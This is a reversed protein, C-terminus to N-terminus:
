IYDNKCNLIEVFPSVNYDLLFIDDMGGSFSTSYEHNSDSVSCNPCLYPSDDVSVGASHFHNSPKDSLWKTFCELCNVVTTNKICKYHAVKSSKNTVHQENDLVENKCFLCDGVIKADETSKINYICWKQTFVGQCLPCLKHKDTTNKDSTRFVLNCLECCIKYTGYKYCTLHVYVPKEEKCEENSCWKVQYSKLKVRGQNAMVNNNCLMCIDKIAVPESSETCSVTCDINENKNDSTSM